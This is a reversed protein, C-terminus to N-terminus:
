ERGKLYNLSRMKGIQRFQNNAQKYIGPETEMDELSLHATHHLINRVSKKFIKNLEKNISNQVEIGRVVYSIGDSINKSHSWYKYDDNLKELYRSVRESFVNTNNFVHRFFEEQEIIQEVRDGLNKENQCSIDREYTMDIEVNNKIISDKLFENYKIPDEKKLTSSLRSTANNLTIRAKQLKEESANKELIYKSHQDIRELSIGSFKDQGLKYLSALMSVKKNLRLLNRQQNKFLEILNREPPEYGFFSGFSDKVSIITKYLPSREMRQYSKLQRHTKNVEDVVIELDDNQPVQSEEFSLERDVVEGNLRYLKELDEPNNFDIKDEPDLDEVTNDISDKDHELRESYTEFAM